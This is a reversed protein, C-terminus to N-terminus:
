DGGNVRIRRVVESTSHDPVYDLIAVEGGYAEVAPTEALTDPSYDGGKAYTDPRLREIVSVATDQSFVTVHDVCSLAALVAARDAAPNIPRDPGKLRRVSEDDNIAVILADGLHRAQELFRTHGRHLVDFCGNTLVVRQGEHHYVEVRRVLDELDIVVNGLGGLYTEMDATTCVSTGQRQVVVDAAAQALDLAVPAPLGSALGLTLCAVFTDGAGSAQKESTPRAWTRHDTIRGGGGRGGATQATGLAVDDGPLALTGDRDMTVVVCRAGTAELLTQRHARMLAARDPSAAVGVLLRLAEEANPTAVDPRLDRWRGVDHADVVVLPPRAGHADVDGSRRGSLLGLLCERVAGDLTGGGYDCVLVADASPLVEALRAALQRQVAQGPGNGAEDLRAVIQDGAVIRSKTTTTTDPDALLGSCDVGDRELLRRLSTGAADAGTVAVLSVVAGLCAANLATNAAGGPAEERDHVEVVPAPAERCMRRVDGHWWGDLMVDGVVVVRPAAEAILRPVEASPAAVKALRSREPGATLDQTITM